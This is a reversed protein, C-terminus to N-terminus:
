EQKARTAASVVDAEVAVCIAISQDDLATLDHVKEREIQVLCPAAVEVTKGECQVAVRGRAIYTVHDHSHRHGAHHDGAKAFVLERFWMGAMVQCRMTPEAM